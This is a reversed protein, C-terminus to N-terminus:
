QSFILFDTNCFQKRLARTTRLIVKRGFWKTVDASKVCTKINNSPTFLIVLVYLPKTKLLM